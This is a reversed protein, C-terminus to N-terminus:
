APDLIMRGILLDPSENRAKEKLSGRDAVVRGAMEGTIARRISRDLFGTFAVIGNAGPESKARQRIAAYVELSVRPEGTVLPAM